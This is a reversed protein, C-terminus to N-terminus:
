WLAPTRTLCSFCIQMCLPKKHPFPCLSLIFVQPSTFAVPTSSPSSTEWEQLCFLSAAVVCYGWGIWLSGPAVWGHTLIALGSCWYCLCLSVGPLPWSRPSPLERLSVAIRPFLEAALVALFSPPLPPSSPEGQLSPEQCHLMWLSLIWLWLLQSFNVLGLYASLCSNLWRSGLSRWKHWAIEQFWTGM